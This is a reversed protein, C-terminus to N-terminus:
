RIQPIYGFTTCTSRFRLYRFRVSYFPASQFPLLQVALSPPLSLPVQALPLCDPVREVMGENPATALVRYPTLKLDLGQEQAPSYTLM